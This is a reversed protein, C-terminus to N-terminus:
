ALRLMVSLQRFEDASLADYVILKHQVFHSTKTWVCLLIFYPTVVTQPLIEGVLEQGNPLMFTIQNKICSFQKGADLRSCFIRSFFQSYLSVLVLFILLLPLVGDVFFLVCLAVIHIVLLYYKLVASPMLHFLM